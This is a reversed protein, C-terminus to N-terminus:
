SFHPWLLPAPPLGQQAAAAATQEPMPLACYQLGAQGVQPVGATPQLAALAEGFWQPEDQQAALKGMPQELQQVVLLPQPDALTPQQQQQQQQQEQAAAEVPQVQQAQPVQQLEDQRSDDLAGETQLAVPEGAEAPQRAAAMPQGAAVPQQETAAQCVAQPETAAQCVAQPAAAAPQQAGAPPEQREAAAPEVGSKPPKIFPRLQSRPVWQEGWNPPKKNVHGRCTPAGCNCNLQEEGGFRYDYTLEEWPQQFVGPPLSCAHCRTLSHPSSRRLCLM